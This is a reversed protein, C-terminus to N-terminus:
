RLYKRLLDVFRPRREPKMTDFAARRRAMMPLVEDEVVDATLGGLERRAIEVHQLIELSSADREVAADM